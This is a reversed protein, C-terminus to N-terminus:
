PCIWFTLALDPEFHASGLDHLVEDGMGLRRVSLTWPGVPATVHFAAEIRGSSTTLRTPEVTQVGRRLLLDAPTISLAPPWDGGGVVEIVAVVEGPPQDGLLTMPVSFLWCPLAPLFFPGWGLLALGTPGTLRVSIATPPALGRCRGGALLVRSTDHELLVMAEHGNFRHVPSGPITSQGAAPALRREAYWLGMCGPSLLSLVACISVTWSRRRM